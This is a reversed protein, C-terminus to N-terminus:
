SLPCICLPHTIPRCPTSHRPTAASRLRHATRAGGASRPDLQHRLARHLQHFPQQRGRGGLWSLGVVARLASGGCGCACCVVCCRACIPSPTPTCRATCPPSAYSHSYSYCHGVTTHHHLPTHPLGSVKIDPNRRKAERMLWWEYGRQYNEDDASHMHSAETGETSEADGGIEVKLIHLSAGMGPTFLYDLIDSRQPEIYDPLLRSTAGGGSLGGIGEFMRGLPTASIPYSAASICSLGALSLLSLVLLPVLLHSSAMKPSREPRPFRQPDICSHPSYLTTLCHRSSSSISVGDVTRPCPLPQPRISGLRRALQRSDTSRETGLACGACSRTLTASQARARWRITWDDSSGVRCVAQSPTQPLKAYVVLAYM